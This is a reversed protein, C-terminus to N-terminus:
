ETRIKVALEDEELQIHVHVDPEDILLGSCGSMSLSADLNAEKSVPYGSHFEEDQPSQTLPSPAAPEPQAPEAPEPSVPAEEQSATAPM